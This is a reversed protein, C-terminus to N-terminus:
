LSRVYAAEQVGQQRDFLSIKRALSHSPREIALYFVYSALLILALVVIWSQRSESALVGFSACVSIVIPHLLYLSYSWRGVWVLLSWPDRGRYYSIEARLWFYFIVGTWLGTQIQHIGGHFHLIEALWMTAWASLRWMWISRNSYEKVLSPLNEALYCGLLWVPFLVIATNIIGLDQWDQAPLYYLAVPIAIGFAGKLINPWGVIFRLRNFFPYVAYYIEECLISWLTSHWLISNREFVVTKPVLMKFLAVTFIVPVLIRLYRRAYFRVTPFAGTKEVFPYHICFGSIVFFVIVAPPGWVLTRVGRALYELISDRQGVPGFLPFAGAHGMTVWLALVCRLADIVYLRRL